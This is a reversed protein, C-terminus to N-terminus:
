IKTKPIEIMVTTGAGLISRIALTGGCMTALCSRVNEIGLHSRGDHSRGNNEPPQAPNFGLGNDVVTIRFSNDTEETKITVTGGRGNKFLSHYVANEAVPQVTLVPLMFDTTRIDYEVRLREEFRLKELWLYQKVHRLETEFPIPQTQSLSDMNVRLYESFALLANQAQPNRDCLM